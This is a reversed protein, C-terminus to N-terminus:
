IINALIATVLASIIVTIITNIVVEKRSKYKKTPEELVEQVKNNLSSIEDDNIIKIKEEREDISKNLEKLLSDINKVVIDILKLDNQFELLVHDSGEVKNELKVVRNSLDKIKEGLSEMMLNIKQRFLIFDEHDQM